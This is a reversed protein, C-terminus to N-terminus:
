ITHEYMEKETQKTTTMMAKVMEQELEKSLEVVKELNNKEIPKYNPIWLYAVQKGENYARYETIMNARHSSFSRVSINHFVSNLVVQVTTMKVMNIDIDVAVVDMNKISDKGCMNLTARLLGLILGGAGCGANDGVKVPETIPGTSSMLIKACGFAVKPPTLFQALNKNGKINIDYLMGILDTFPESDKVAQMFMEALVQLEDWAVPNKKYYTLESRFDDNCSIVTNKFASKIFIDESILNCLMQMLDDIVQKTNRGDTAQVVKQVQNSLESM